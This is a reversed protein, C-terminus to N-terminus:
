FAGIGKPTGLGTPGDYGSRGMCLYFTGCSGNGGSTIDNLHNTHNYPHSGYVVQSANGALAYVGAIIPASVSTGGFVVWGGDSSNYAAVGSAPDAVAAVDAITRRACQTDEQWAPKAIYQSCGSGANAWASERWSQGSRMLTTGGVATVYQSAAPFQPGYGSDGSSATIAIGPHNYYRAEDRAESAYEAGGYSNSIANAGLNAATNVGRGLNSFSSSNAEVLLIRCNPCIASVVDLDLATEQAWTSSVQPYNKGGDQDVKRFCGNATTCAPLGFQARYVALDSEAKPNDYATVIAITQGKGASASPLSYAAQLDSPVLGLPGKSTKKANSASPQVLLAMCSAFGKPANACVRTVKPRFFLTPQSGHSDAFAQSPSIVLALFLVGAIFLANTTKRM